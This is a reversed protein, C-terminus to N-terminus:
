GPSYRPWRIITRMTVVSGDYHESRTGAYTEYKTFVNMFYPHLQKGYM